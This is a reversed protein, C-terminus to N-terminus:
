KNFSGKIGVGLKRGNHGKHRRLRREKSPLQSTLCPEKGGHSSIAVSRELCGLGVITAENISIPNM